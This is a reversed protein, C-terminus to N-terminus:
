REVVPVVLPDAPLRKDVPPLKGAKVQEALVPAEHFKAPQASANVAFAALLAVCAMSPSRRHLHMSNRGKKPRASELAGSPPPAFKQRRRFASRWRASAM